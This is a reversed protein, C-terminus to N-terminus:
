CSAKAALQRWEPSRENKGLRIFDAAWTDQIPDAFSSDLAREHIYAKTHEAYAAPEDDQCSSPIKARAEFASGIDTINKGQAMLEAVMRKADRIHKLEHVLYIAWLQSNDGSNTNLYVQIGHDIRNGTIYMQAKMRATTQTTRDLDFTLSGAKIMADMEVGTSSIYPNKSQTMQSILRLIKGEFQLILEETPLAQSNPSLFPEKTWLAREESNEVIGTGRLFTLEDNITRQPIFPSRQVDVPRVITPQPPVAKSEGTCGSVLAAIGTTGGILVNRWTPQVRRPAIFSNDPSINHVEASM